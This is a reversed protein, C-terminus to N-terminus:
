IGSEQWYVWIRVCYIGITVSPTGSPCTWTSGTQLDLASTTGNPSLVEYGMWIQGPQIMAFDPPDGAATYGAFTPDAPIGLQSNGTIYATVDHVQGTDMASGTYTDGPFHGVAVSDQPLNYTGAETTYGKADSVYGRLQELVRRADEDAALRRDAHGSQVRSTLAISLFSTVMMASVLVAM